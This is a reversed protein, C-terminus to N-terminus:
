AAQLHPTRLHPLLGLDRQAGRLAHVARHAERAALLALGVKSHLAQRRVDLRAKRWTRPSAPIAARNQCSDVLLAGGVAPNGVGPRPKSGM